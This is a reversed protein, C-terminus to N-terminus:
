RRAVHVPLGGQPQLTAQPHLGPLSDTDALSFRFRQALTALILLGELWAFPEGICLRPGAGFPIYRYRHPGAGDPAAGGADSGMFREPRFVDADVWHDPHRGLLLPSIYVDTGAPVTHGGLLDEAVTRRMILWVPPYLRM